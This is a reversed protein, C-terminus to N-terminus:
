KEAVPFQILLETKTGRTSGKCSISRSVPIVHFRVGPVDYTKRTLECDSGSAWCHAGRRAVINMWCALSTHHIVNFGSASYASHEGFYPPDAYVLDGKGIWNNEDSLLTAFDSEVIRPRCERLLQAARHMADFDFSAPRGWPVNYQGKQNVRWLGNFSCAQLILFRRAWWNRPAELPRLVPMGPSRLSAFAAQQKEVPLAAFDILDGILEMCAHHSQLTRFVDCIAPNIDALLYSQAVGRDMAALELSGAGLFPSVWRKYTPAGEPAMIDLLADRVRAKSGAWRFITGNSKSPKSM